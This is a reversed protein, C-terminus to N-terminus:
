SLEKVFYDKSRQRFAQLATTKTEPFIDLSDLEQVTFFGWESFESNIKVEFSEPCDAIYDLYIVHVQNAVFSGHTFYEFHEIDLNTEEKIERRVAQLPEEAFDIKGGPISWQGNFKQAFKALFLRNQRDFIFAGAATVQKGLTQM